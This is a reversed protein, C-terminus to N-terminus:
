HPLGPSAQATGSSSPRDGWAEGRGLWFLGPQPTPRCPPWYRLTEADLTPPPLPLDQALCLHAIARSFEAGHGPRQAVGHALEHAVLGPWDAAVIRGPDVMLTVASPMGQLANGPLSSRDGCCFGDVGAQPAIPAAFVQVHPSLAPEFCGLLDSLITQLRQNVRHIHQGIWRLAEGPPDAVHALSIWRPEVALDRLVGLYQAARREPDPSGTPARQWYVAQFQAHQDFTSAAGWGQQFRDRQPDCAM